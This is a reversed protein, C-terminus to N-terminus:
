NIKIPIGCNQDIKKDKDIKVVVMGDKYDAFASDSKVDCPFRVVRCFSRASIEKRLYNKDGTETEEKKEASITLDGDKLELKVDEKGFGAAAIEVSYSDETESVNIKPFAVIKPQLDEFLTFAWTDGFFNSFLDDLDTRFRRLAPKGWLRLSPLLSEKEKTM